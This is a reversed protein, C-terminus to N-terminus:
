KTAITFFERLVGLMQVNSAYKNDFELKPKGAMSIKVRSGFCDIATLLKQDNLHNFNDFSLSTEATKVVIEKVKFKTALRKVISINILNETEEPLNGFTDTLSDIVEKEEQVDNLEAIEKYVDM